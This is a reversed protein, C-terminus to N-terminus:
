MKAAEELVVTQQQLAIFRERTKLGPQGGFEVRDALRANSGGDFLEGGPMM